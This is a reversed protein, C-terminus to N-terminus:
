PYLLFVSYIDMRHLPSGASIPFFYAVLELGVLQRLPPTDTDINYIDACKEVNNQLSRDPVVFASIVPAPM